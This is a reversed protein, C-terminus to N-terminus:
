IDFDLYRIIKLTLPLRPQSERQQCRRKAKGVSQVWFRTWGPQEVCMNCCLKGITSYGKATRPTPTIQLKIMHPLLIFKRTANSTPSEVTVRKNLKYNCDSCFAHDSLTNRFADQKTKGKFVEDVDHLCGTVTNGEILEM